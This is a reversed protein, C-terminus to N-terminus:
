SRLIGTISERSPGFAANDPQELNYVKNIAPKELKSYSRDPWILVLSDVPINAGLGIIMKYDVSSLVQDAKTFEELWPLFFWGIIRFVQQERDGVLLQSGIRVQFM